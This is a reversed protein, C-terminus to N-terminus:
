RLNDNAASDTSGKEMAKNGDEEAMPSCPESPKESDMMGFKVNGSGRYQTQYPSVGQDNHFRQGPLDSRFTGRGESHRDKM